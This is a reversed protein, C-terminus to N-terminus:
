PILNKLLDKSEAESELESTLLDAADEATYDVFRSMKYNFNDSFISHNSINYIYMFVPAYRNPM